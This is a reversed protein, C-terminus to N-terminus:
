WANWFGHGIGLRIQVILRSCSPWGHGKPGFSFRLNKAVLEGVLRPQVYFAPKKTELFGPDRVGGSEAPLICSLASHQSCFWVALWAKSGVNEPLEEPISRGVRM